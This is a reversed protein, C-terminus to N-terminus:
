ALLHFILYKFTISQNDLKIKFDTIEINSFISIETLCQEINETTNMIEEKLNKSFIPILCPNCLIYSFFKIFSLLLLIINRM